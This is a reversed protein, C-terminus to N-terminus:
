GDGFGDRLTHEGDAVAGDDLEDDFFTEGSAYLFDDEDDGRFPLVDVFIVEVVGGFFGFGLEVGLAFLVAKGRDFFDEVEGFDGDDGM